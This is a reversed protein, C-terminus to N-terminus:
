RRAATRSDGNYAYGVICRSSSAYENADVLRHCRTKQFSDCGGVQASRLCSRRKSILCTVSELRPLTMPMSMRQCVSARVLRDM